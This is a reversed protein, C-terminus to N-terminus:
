ETPWGPDSREYYVYLNASYPDGSRFYMENDGPKIKHFCKSAPYIRDGIINDTTNIDRKITVSKERTDLWFMQGNSINTLFEYVGDNDIFYPDIKNEDTSYYAVLVFDVDKDGDVFFTRHTLSYETEVLKVWKADNSVFTMALEVSGTNTYGSKKVETFWGRIYWGDNGEGYYLYGPVNDIIDKEVYDVINNATVMADDGVCIVSLTYSRAKTKFGMVRNNYVETDYGCNHIDSENLITQVGNVGFTKNTGLYLFPAGQAHNGNIYTLVDRM